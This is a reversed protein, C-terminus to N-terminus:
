KRGMTIQVLGSEYAVCGTTKFETQKATPAFLPLGQGLVVPHISQILEDILDANLMLTNIQGGGVLWIDGGPQQKLNEVFLAPEEQIFTVHPTSLQPSRSFVYNTKDPYPYDGFTLTLKHTEHGSLTTDISDYFPTYGYDNGDMFLWDTEGEPGAIYGDLSTAIFLKVKRM